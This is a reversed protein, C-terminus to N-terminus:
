CPSLYCRSSAIFYRPIPGVQENLHGIRFTLSLLDPVAHLLESGIVQHSVAGCCSLRLSHCHPLSRMLHQFLEEAAEIQAASYYEYYHGFGLGLDLHQLRASAALVAHTAVHLRWLGEGIEFGFRLSSLTSALQPGAEMMGWLHEDSAHQVTLATLRSAMSRLTAAAAEYAESTVVPHGKTAWEFTFEQLLPMPVDFLTHPKSKSHGRM